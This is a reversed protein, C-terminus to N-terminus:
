EKCTKIRKNKHPESASWEILCNNIPMIWMILIGEQSGLYFWFLFDDGAEVESDTGAEHSCIFLPDKAYFSEINNESCSSHVTMTM